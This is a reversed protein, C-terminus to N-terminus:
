RNSNMDILFCFDLLNLKGSSAQIQECYTGTFGDPCLSLNKFLIIKIKYIIFIFYYYIVMSQMIESKSLWKKSMTSFKHM